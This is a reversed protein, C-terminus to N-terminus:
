RPRTRPVTGAARDPRDRDRCLHAARGPLPPRRPRPRPARLHRAADLAPSLTLGQYNGEKAHRKDVSLRPDTLAERVDQYRTVIWAPNGDAGAIRHVPATDRLRRHVDHPHDILGDAPDM